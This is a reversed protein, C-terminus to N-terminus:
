ASLMLRNYNFNCIVFVKFLSGQEYLLFKYLECRVNLSPDCGLERKVVTALRKIRSNWKPNMITFHTPDLQWTNKTKKGRGYPAQSCVSIIAKAQAVSAPLGVFDDVGSIKLAPLPLQFAGGNAFSWPRTLSDLTHVISGIYPYSEDYHSAM